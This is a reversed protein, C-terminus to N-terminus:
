GAQLSQLCSIAMQFSFYRRPNYPAAFYNIFFVPSFQGTKKKQATKAGFYCSGVGLM